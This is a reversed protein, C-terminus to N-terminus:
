FLFYRQTIPLSTAPECTLLPGYAPVQCTQADVEMKPRYNDHIMPQKRVGCINKLASPTKALGFGEKIGSALGAQPVM